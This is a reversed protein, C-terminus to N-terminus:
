REALWDRPFRHGKQQAIEIYEYIVEGRQGAADIEAARAKPVNDLAKAWSAREEEPLSFVKVKSDALVKLAAETKEQTLEATKVGWKKAVEGLIQRVDDPLSEMFDKNATLLPTNQAGLGIDTYQKGVEHLRFAVVVDVPLLWGEQLGTQMSVFAENATSQIGVVNNPLWRMNAGAAAIRKNKLESFSDWEFSSILGYNGVVSVALYTQNFGNELLRALSEDNKFVEAAAEQVLTPSTPGFPAGFSFVHAPLQGPSFAPMIEAIDFLGSEVAQLCEGLKCVTGGWSPQWDVTHETEQEVRSSVEPIFYDQITQIWTAATPHGAGIRITIVDASASTSLALALGALTIVVKKHKM